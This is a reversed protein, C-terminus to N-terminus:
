SETFSPFVFLGPAIITLCSLDVFRVSSDAQGVRRRRLNRWGRYRIDPTAACAPGLLTKCGLKELCIHMTRACVRPTHPTSLSMRIRLYVVACVQYCAHCKAKNGYEDVLWLQGKIKKDELCWSCRQRVDCYDCVHEGPKTPHPQLVRKKKGNVRSTTSESEIPCRDDTGEACTYMIAIQM